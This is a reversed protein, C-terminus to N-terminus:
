LWDAPVATEKALLEGFAEAEMPKGFLFGQVADCKADLLSAVQDETEVGEALVRAGVHPCATILSGTLIKSARKIHVTDIVSKDIKLMDYPVETLLRLNAGMVGFDDIAIRFDKEKLRAVTRLFLERNDSEATETIEVALLRRNVGNRNAIEVLREVFRETAITHKSFNAAVIVDPFGQMQWEKAHQCVQEFVHFDLYEIVRAQELQPIFDDPLVLLGNDDVFRVLAEVGCLARMKLDYQPQFFIRFRNEALMKQLVGPHALNLHKVPNEKGDDEKTVNLEFRDTIVTMRRFECVANELHLIALKEEADSGYRERLMPVADLMATIRSGDKEFVAEGSYRMWNQEECAVIEVYPNNLLQRYVDKHNSIVFYIKDGRVLHFGIPRCHPKDEAVTSFYCVATKTLFDDVKKLNDM